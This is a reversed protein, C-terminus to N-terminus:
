AIHRTGSDYLCRIVAVVATSSPLKPTRHPSRTPDPEQSFAIKCFTSTVCDQHALYGTLVYQSAALISGYAQQYKHVLAVWCSNKGGLTDRERRGCVGHTKSRVGLSVGIPIVM